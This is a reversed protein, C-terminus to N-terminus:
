QSINAIDTNRKEQLKGIDVNGVKNPEYDDPPTEIVNNDSIKTFNHMTRLGGSGKASLDDSSMDLYSYNDSLNSGMESFSFALPEGNLGTAKNNIEVEGPNLYNYIEKLGDIVRNGRNLLLVAPVKVVNPPLLLRQGTELIIHTSGDTHKQRKDICIFHMENRKKTRSLKILLEKCHICNNSYYLVESM